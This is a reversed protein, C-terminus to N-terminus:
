WHLIASNKFERYIYICCKYSDIISTVDIFEKAFNCLKNWIRM